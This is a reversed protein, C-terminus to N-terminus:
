ETPKQGKGIRDADSGEPAEPLEEFDVMIAPPPVSGFKISGEGQFIGEGAVDPARPLGDNTGERGEPDLEATSQVRFESYDQEEEACVVIEANEPSQRCNRRPAPPGYRNQNESLAQEATVDQEEAEDDQEFDYRYQIGQAVLPTIPFSLALGVIGLRKWM